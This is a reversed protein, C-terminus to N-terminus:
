PGNLSDKIEEKLIRVKENRPTNHVEHRMDKEYELVREYYEAASEGEKPKPIGSEVSSTGPTIDAQLFERVVSNPAPKTKFIVKMHSIYANQIAYLWKIGDCFYNERYNLKGDGNFSVIVKDYVYVGKKKYLKHYIDSVDGRYMHSMAWTDTVNEWSEASVKNDTDDFHYEFRIWLALVGDKRIKHSIYYPQKKVMDLCKYYTQCGVNVEDTIKKFDNETKLKLVKMLTFAM